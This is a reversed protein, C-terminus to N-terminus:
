DGGAAGDERLAEAMRRTFDRLTFHEEMRRRANAGLQKALAPDDLLRRIAHHLEAVNGPDVLFGTEGDVVFDSVAGTRTAIVARGMAMAEAIVAYGCAHQVNQMPVVVFFATEYLARLNLYDGQSRLEIHPPLTAVDVNVTEEFWTSGAAIRVPVQLGVVANVLTRYDRRALGASVVTSPPQVGPRFFDTDVAYGTPHVRAAPVGFRDVLATGLAASLPHWHVHRMRRLVRIVADFKRGGIFHGHFVIHLKRSSRLPLSALALPIGIDEGTTIFRDFRDRSGRLLATAAGIQGLRSSPLSLREALGSEVAADIEFRPSHGTASLEREAATPLARVVYATRSSM